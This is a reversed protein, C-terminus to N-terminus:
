EMLDAIPLVGMFEDVQVTVRGPIRRSLFMRRITVAHGADLQICDDAHTHVSMTHALRLKRGPFLDLHPSSPITIPM